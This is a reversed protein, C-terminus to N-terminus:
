VKKRGSCNSCADHFLFHIFKCIYAACTNDEKKDSGQNRLMNVNILALAGIIAIIFPTIFIDTSYGTGESVCLVYMLSNRM